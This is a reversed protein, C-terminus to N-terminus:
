RSDSGYFAFGPQLFWNGRGFHREYSLSYIGGTGLAEAFIAKSGPQQAGLATFCILLVATISFRHM